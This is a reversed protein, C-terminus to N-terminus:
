VTPDDRRPHSPSNVKPGLRIPAFASLKMKGCRPCDLDVRMMEIEMQTVAYGCEPCGRHIVKRQIEGIVSM